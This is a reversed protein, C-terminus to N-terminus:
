FPIEDDMDGRKPKTATAKKPSPPTPVTIEGLDTWGTIEFIPTCSTGGGQIKNEKVDALQVAPLQDPHEKVGELYADHLADLGVWLGAATSLLERWTTEGDLRALVRLGERHEDSPADGIDENLSFLKTEPPAGKPFRIWGHEIHKLDFVVVLDDTVDNQVTRWEGYEYVRDQTYFRGVRADYKFLPMIEGGGTKRKGLGMVKEGKREGGIWLLRAGHRCDARL